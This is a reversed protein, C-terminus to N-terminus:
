TQQNLIQYITIITAFSNRDNRRRTIRFRRCDRFEFRIILM